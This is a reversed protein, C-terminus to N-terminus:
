AFINECGSLLFSSLGLDQSWADNGNEREEGEWGRRHRRRKERRRRGMRRKRRKIRRGPKEGVTEREAV